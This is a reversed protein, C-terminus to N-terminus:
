KHQRNLKWFTQQLIEHLTALPLPGHLSFNEDSGYLVQNFGIEQLATTLKQAHMNGTISIIVTHQSLAELVASICSIDGLLNFSALLVSCDSSVNDTTRLGAAFARTTFCTAFDNKTLIKKAIDYQQLLSPMCRSINARSITSIQKRILADSYAMSLRLDHYGPLLNQIKELLENDIGLTQQLQTALNKCSKDALVNFLWEQRHHSAPRLDSFVFDVNRPYVHHHQAREVIYGLDDAEKQALGVDLVEGDPFELLCAAQIPLDATAQLYNSLELYHPYRITKHVDGINIVIKDNKQLVTISGIYCQVTTALLLIFFIFKATYHM